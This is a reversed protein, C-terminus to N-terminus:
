HQAACNRPVTSPTRGIETEYVVPAINRGLVFCFSFVCQFMVNRSGADFKKVMVELTEFICCKYTRIHVEV